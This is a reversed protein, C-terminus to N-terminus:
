ESRGCQGSVWVTLVPQVITSVISERHVSSLDPHLRAFRLTLVVTHFDVRGTGVEDDPHCLLRGM